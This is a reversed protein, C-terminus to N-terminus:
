NRYVLPIGRSEKLVTENKRRGPSSELVKTWRLSSESKMLKATAARSKNFHRDRLAAQVAPPLDGFKKRGADIDANLRDLEGLYDSDRMEM